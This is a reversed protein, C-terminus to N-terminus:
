LNNKNIQKWNELWAEETYSEKFRKSATESCLDYFEKNKLKKAISM